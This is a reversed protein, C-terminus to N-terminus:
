LVDEEQEVAAIEIQPNEKKELNAKFEEILANMKKHAKNKDRINKILLFVIGIVLLVYFVKLAKNLLVDKEYKKQITVMENSLDGTGLKYNVELAENNLKAESKEYNDL